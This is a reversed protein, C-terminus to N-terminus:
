GGASDDGALTAPLVAERGSIADVIRGDRMIWCATGTREALERAHRAARQLAITAGRMDPDRPERLAEETPINM